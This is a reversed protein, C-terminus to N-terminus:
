VYNDIQQQHTPTQKTLYQLKLIRMDFKKLACGDIELSELTKPFSERLPYDKKNWVSMSTKPKELDCLKLKVANDLNVLASVDGGTFAVKLIDLFKRLSDAPAKSIILNHPPNKMEITCMGGEVFRQHVKGINGKVAYTTGEPQRAAHITFIVDEAKTTKNMKKSFRLTAFSKKSELSPALRNHVVVECKLLM